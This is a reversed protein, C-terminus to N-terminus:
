RSWLKKFYSGFILHAIVILVVFILFGIEVTHVISEMNEVTAGISYALIVIFALLSFVGMFNISIYKRLPMLNLGALVQATTRTGYVFKSLYLVRGSHRSFAASLKELGRQIRGAVLKKAFRQNIHAGVYYWFMDSVVTSFMAIGVVYSMELRGALALYVAPLLLAEGAFLLGIFLVIYPHASFTGIVSGFYQEIM